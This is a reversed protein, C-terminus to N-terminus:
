IDKTEKKQTTKEKKRKTFKDKLIMKINYIVPLTYIIESDKSYAM